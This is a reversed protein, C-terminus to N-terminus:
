PSQGFILTANTGGFGFSNKLAYRLTKQTKEQYNIATKPIHEFLHERQVKPDIDQLHLTPPLIGTKMSLATFASEVVGAAGLLHGTSSKTSSIYLKSPSSEVGEFLREIALVEITDGLPTSTAHASVYQLDSATIKADKLAMKMSNYAGSGDESPSTTHYADGSLGYGCLEAIIKAGRKQASELDELVLVGAGEGMVFGNRKIDFPRSCTLPDSGDIPQGLAKMRSFGAISLTDISSDAGGALMMDAYGLRIFNFADGISHSGAACATAVCHVPGKLGHMMSIHGAAMNVLIKPVFYPSLKRYSQRLTDSGAIIESLAGIGGNGMTIGCKHPDYADSVKEIGANKLAYKSAMIGYRIFKSTEREITKLESDNYDGENNGVSLTAGVAVNTSGTFEPSLVKLGNYGNILRQFVLEGEGCGIPTVLGIGTVVVRRVSM